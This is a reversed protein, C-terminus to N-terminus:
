AGDTSLTPEVEQEPNHKGEDKSGTKHSKTHLRIDLYIKLLVLIFLLPVPSDLMMIPMGGAIIAVHLLVVRKYPRNMLAGISLSAYEKRFVYNQFFSIGHSVFLALVPWEMGAPHSQWLRRIVSILLQVFVLHGPWSQQPFLSEEGGGLKFFALLFFGHVACFGGFHLCFFPIAFLKSLHAIPHEVRVLAIRLINYFGTVVNEVWYLLIVVAADWGLFLVGM